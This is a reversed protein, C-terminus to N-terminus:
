PWFDGTQESVTPHAWELDQPSTAKSRLDGRYRVFVASDNFSTITGEELEGGPYHNGTYVVGRGIDKDTPEIM